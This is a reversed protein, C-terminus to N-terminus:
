RLDPTAAWLPRSNIARHYESEALKVVTPWDQAPAVSQNHQRMRVRVGPHIVLSTLCRVM